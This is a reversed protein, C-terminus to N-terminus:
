ATWTNDPDGIVAFAFDSTPRSKVDGGITMPSIRCTGAIIAGELTNPIFEFDVELGRNTWTYATFGSAHLDQVATGALVFSYEVDGSLTGGDLTNIDDGATETPDVRCNTVQMEFADQDPATGFKLTGPGMKYSATM